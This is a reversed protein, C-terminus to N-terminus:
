DEETRDAVSCSVERTNKNTMAYQSGVSQITCRGVPTVRGLPASKREM